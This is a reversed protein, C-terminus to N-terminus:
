LCWSLLYNVFFGKIRRSFPMKKYYEQTMRHSSGQNDVFASDLWQASSPDMIIVADEENWRMARSDLNVSGVMSTQGDVTMVKSHQFAGEYLWIEAGRRQLLHAYYTNGADLIPTDGQESFLVEVHVGRRLAQRLARRVSPIPLLYPSTIHLSDKASEILKVTVRRMEAKKVRCQRGREIVAVSCVSEESSVCEDATYPYYSDGDFGKGGAKEFHQSFLFQLGEVCAGELRVHTDVYQGYAPKGKINYDAVNFGGTYGIKGDIVVIKRHDRLVRHVYPFTYPEYVYIQIGEKRLKELRSVYNYGRQRDYYGDVLLRCQVGEKSKQKMVELVRNAIVDNAFIFYECHIHHKAQQMDLLLSEYKEQGSQYFAISDVDYVPIAKEGLFNLLVSLILLFNM